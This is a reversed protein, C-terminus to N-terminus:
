TKDVFELNPYIKIMHGDNYKRDVWIELRNKPRIGCRRKKQRIRVFFSIFFNYLMFLFIFITGFIVVNNNFNFRQFLIPYISSWILGIMGFGFLYFLNVRGHLNFKMEHYDWLSSGMLKEQMLSSNYEIIASIIFSFLYLFLNSSNNFDVVLSIFVAALGYMPTFYGYILSKRKEFKKSKLTCWITEIISGFFSGFMFIWFTKILGTM